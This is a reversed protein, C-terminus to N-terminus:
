PEVRRVLNGSLVFTRSVRNGAADLTAITFGPLRQGQYDFQGALLPYVGRLGRERYATEYRNRARNWTFVRISDFDHDSGVSESTGWVYQGRRTGDDEVANIEQWATIVRGEAYQAVEDPIAMDFFRALAWGAKGKARVLYWDEMPPREPAKGKRGKSAPQVPQSGPPLPRELARHELVDAEEGEQLQFFRPTSRGPEIHLNALDRARARGTSPRVVTERIVQQAKDYIEPSIIHREELWGEQRSATRIRAWRRRRALVEIKQGASVEGIEASGAGLRDRLAAKGGIYGEGIAREGQAGGCGFFLLMAAILPIAARVASYCITM